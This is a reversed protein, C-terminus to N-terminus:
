TGPDIRLLVDGSRVSSGVSASLSRVVGAVPSVIENRMKMAELVVLPQGKEVRDGERVRVELVKGPMPPRLPIGPGSESPPASPPTPPPFAVPSTAGSAGPGVGSVTRIRCPFSERNVIVGFEPSGDLRSPFGEVEVREGAIELIVRSPSVEVLRFPFESAGVRVTSRSLDVEVM